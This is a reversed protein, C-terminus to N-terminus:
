RSYLAKIIREIGALDKKIEIDIFGKEKEFLDKIRGAQGYGMEMVVYGGSALYSPSERIIRRYFDLGDGGGYLASAPEYDKIEPQLEEMEEARREAYTLYAMGLVVPVIVAVIKVILIVAPWAYGTWFGTEM